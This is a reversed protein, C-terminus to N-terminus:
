GPPRAGADPRLKWLLVGRGRYVLRADGLLGRDFAPPDVMWVYDFAQRPFSALAQDVPRPLFLRCRPDRVLQSPDYRFRGAPLYRNTLLRAGPNEWHNNTLGERRVITLGGIHGNRWLAWSRDACSVGVLSLVRAGMPVQELARLKERQDDAALALSWTVSATRALLFTLALVALVQGLRPDTERRFRIALLCFALVFPMLRMDAYASGFILRPLLAFAAALVLASFTLMRSLTLRPHILAFLLMVATLAFSLLDWWRWRDRLVTIVSFWKNKWNFWDATGGGGSERWLLMLIVPLSLVAAHLGGRLV